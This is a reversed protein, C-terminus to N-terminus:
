GATVAVEQGDKGIMKVDAFIEKTAEEDYTLTGGTCLTNALEVGLAAIGAPDQAVTGQMTGAAIADLAGQDGNFGFLLVDSRGAEQLAEMAGLAMPDNAAFVAVIDPNAALIDQMAEYGKTQDSDATLEQVMTYGAADMINKFGEPRRAAYVASAECRIVAYNKSATGAEELLQLAYKGAMQGGGYMDSVIIADKDTGGDGIDCIIVPINKQKALDVISSLAEPKCPSIVLADVGEDNILRTAGSVMETEDNQQDHLVIQIGLEKAKSEVGATMAQFFEQQNDYVSWGFKLGTAEAPPNASDDAPSTDAPAETAAPETAAPETASSNDTGNNCAAFMSGMLIVCLALAILRMKKM